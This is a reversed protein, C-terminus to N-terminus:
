HFFFFCPFAGAANHQGLSRLDVMVIRVHHPDRVMVGHESVPMAVEALVANHETLARLITM